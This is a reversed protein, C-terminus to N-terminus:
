PAVYVWISAHTSHLSSTAHISAHRGHLAAKTTSEGLHLWLHTSKSSWTSLRASDMCPGQLAGEITESDKESDRFKLASIWIPKYPICAPAHQLMAGLLLFSGLVSCVRTRSRLRGRMFM